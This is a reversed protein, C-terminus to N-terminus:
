RAAAARELDLDTRLLGIDGELSRVAGDVDAKTALQSAIDDQFAEAHAEAQPRPVGASELKKMSALTDISM